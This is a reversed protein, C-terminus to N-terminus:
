ARIGEEDGFSCVVLDLFLKQLLDVEPSRSRRCGVLVESVDEGIFEQKTFLFYRASANHLPRNSLVLLGKM